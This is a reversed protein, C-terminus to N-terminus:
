LQRAQASGLVRQRRERKTRCKTGRVQPRVTDACHSEKNSGMGGEAGCAVAYAGVGHRDCEDALAGDRKHLLEGALKTTMGPSSPTYAVYIGFEPAPRRLLRRCLKTSRSPTSEHARRTASSSYRGTGRGAPRASGSSSRSTRIPSVSGLPTTGSATSSPQARRCPM